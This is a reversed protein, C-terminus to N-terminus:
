SVRKQMANHSQHLVACHPCEPEKRRISAGLMIGIAVGIGLWVGIHGAVVGFAAGLAAGLVLGLGSYKPKSQM